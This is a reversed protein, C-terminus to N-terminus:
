FTQKGPDRNPDNVDATEARLYASTIDATGKWAYPDVGAVMVIDRMDATMPIRGDWDWPLMTEASCYHNVLARRFTGQSARNKLSSHLLYGNFFVVDGANVQVAVGQQHDYPSGYAVNGEDYEDSGHPQTPWIVGDRHSGPRVWLCGNEITADDLAMWAGLLSRDRTPIFYEDQHWAQGPKGAPKSFLMSQMCKVNPGILETLVQVVAPHALFRDAILTSAKHPFQVTLVRGIAEEDTASDAVPVLGRIPGRLGRCIAATEALLKGRDDVSLLQTVVVYGDALYRTRYSPNPVDMGVLTSSTGAFLPLVAGGELAGAGCERGWWVWGAFLPQSSSTRALLPLVAGGELAGAGCRMGRRVWGAFLPLM